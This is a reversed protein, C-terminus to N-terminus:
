FTQNLLKSLAKYLDPLAQKFEAPQEFFYEVCVPFFEERSVYADLRLFNNGPNIKEFHEDAIEKWEILAKNDLINYDPGEIWNQQGLAKAFINLGTNYSDEPLLYGHALEKWSFAIYGDPHIEGKKYSDSHNSFFEDIYFLITAYHDLCTERLGFTLQTLSAASLVKMEASVEKLEGRSVFEKQAIFREVRDAFDNKEESHLQNYYPFFKELVACYEKSLL